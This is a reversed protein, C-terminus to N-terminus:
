ISTHSVLSRHLSSKDRYGKARNVLMRIKNTAEQDPIFRILIATQKKSKAKQKKSKAEQPTSGNAVRRRISSFTARRSSTELRV